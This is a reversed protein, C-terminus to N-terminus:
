ERTGHDNRTKYLSSLIGGVLLTITVTLSCLPSIVIIDALFIKGGIFILILALSHQLYQFRHLIASLSFYLARLGLIAFINSTYVIFPNTTVALVAPVSDVAFIVDALEIFVLTLFLPTAVRYGNERTFFKNGHLEKSVPIVSRIWNLLKSEELSKEDKEKFMLMKIGTILLFAGFLYLVPHFTSILGIGGTIMAGRMIVAGLIGWFLVRHQYRKPIAFHEFVLAIAFINDLSLSKEIFYGTFFNDGGEGDVFFMIGLGFSVSITFYVLSLTLSETVGIEKQGRHWLGLDFVLLILVLAFFVGWLLTMHETM